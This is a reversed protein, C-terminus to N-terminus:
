LSDYYYELLHCEKKFPNQESDDCGDSEEIRKDCSYSTALM